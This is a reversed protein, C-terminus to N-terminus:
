SVLEIGDLDEAIDGENLLRCRAGPRHERLFAAAASPATLVDDVGVPFGADALTSAIAARTPSTTNTILAFPLGAEDIRRLADVAGPLPEWSAALVGDIDILLARIDM